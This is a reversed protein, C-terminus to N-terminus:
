KGEDVSKAEEPNVGMAKLIENTVDYEPKIYTTITSDLIMDYENDEAYKSIKTRLDETTAKLLRGELEQLEQRFRMGENRYRLSIGDLQQQIQTLQKEIDSKAKDALMPNRVQDLLKKGEEQLKEGEEKIGELKKQYDKDTSTLLTKNRDYDPHNRVLTMFNVSGIKMEAMLPLAAMAALGLILSKKSM